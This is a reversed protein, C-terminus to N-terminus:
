DGDDDPNLAHVATLEVLTRFAAQLHKVADAEDEGATRAEAVACKFTESMTHMAGLFFAGSPQSPKRGRVTECTGIVEATAEVVADLLGDAVMGVRVAAQPPGDGEAADRCVKRAVQRIAAIGAAEIDLKPAPGTLDWGTAARQSFATANVGFDIIDSAADLAQAPLLELMDSGVRYVINIVAPWHHGTVESSQERWRYGEAALSSTEGDEGLPTEIQAAEICEPEAEAATLTEVDAVTTRAREAFGNLAAEDGGNVLTEITVTM